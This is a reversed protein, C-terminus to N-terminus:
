KTLRIGRVGLDAGGGPETGTPIFGAWEAVVCEARASGSPDREPPECLGETGPTDVTIDIRLNRIPVNAFELIGLSPDYSFHTGQVLEVVGPNGPLRGTVTLDTVVAPPPAYCSLTNLGVIASPGVDGVNTTCSVSSATSGIAETSKGDHVAILRLGTFGIVNYKDPDTSSTNKFITGSPDTVPFTLVEGIKGALTSWVSSSHGNTTCVYTPSPYNLDLSDPFGDNIWDTRTSAGTNPCSASPSVDWAGLDLFGWQSTGLDNTDYWFACQTGEPGTAVHCDGVAQDVTVMIPVVHPAAGAPGWIATATSHVPRENGLGIAPAFFLEQPATYSVTVEGSTGPCAGSFSIETSSADAVNNQAVGTAHAEASSPTVDHAGKIQACWQAAALAGADAANVMKRRKMLMAGLDVTLAAMGLMTTLVLAVIVIIAGSEDDHIPRRIRM